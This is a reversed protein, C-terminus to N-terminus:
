RRFGKTNSDWECPYNALWFRCPLLYAPSHPHIPALKPSCKNGSEHVCYAMYEGSSVHLIENNKQYFVLIIYCFYYYYYHCDFYYYYVIIVIIIITIIVAISISHCYITITHTIFYCCYYFLTMSLFLINEWQFLAM